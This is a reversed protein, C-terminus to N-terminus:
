QRPPTQYDQWFHPLSTTPPSASPIGYSYVRPTYPHYAPTNQNHAYGTAPTNPNHAYGMTPGSVQSFHPSAGYGGSPPLQHPGPPSWVSPAAPAPVGGYHAIIQPVPPFYGPSTQYGGPSLSQLTAVPLMQVSPAPQPVVQSQSLQTGFFPQM